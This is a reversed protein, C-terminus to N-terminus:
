RRTRMVKSRYMATDALGMLTPEDGATREDTVGFSFSVTPELDYPDVPTALHREDLLTQIRGLAEEAQPRDTDPMIVVFEDGGWRALFDVERLQARLAGAVFVLARDGAVHGYDDNIRKLGDIDIMAVALTRGSRRARALEERLREDLARRNPVGILWDKLALDKCRHIHANEVTLQEIHRELQRVRARLTPVTEDEQVCSLGDETNLGAAVADVIPTMASPSGKAETDRSANPTEALLNGSPDM